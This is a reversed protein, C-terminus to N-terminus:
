LTSLDLINPGIYDNGGFAAHCGNCAGGSAGGYSTMCAGVPPAIGRWLIVFEGNVEKLEFWEWGVAGSKNYTGGRKVQAFTEGSQMTKVVITGVSFAGKGAVPMQNVYVTRKGAIHVLGDGVPAETGIDYRQWATFGQFDRQFAVFSGPDGGPEDETAVPGCASLLLLAIAGRLKL